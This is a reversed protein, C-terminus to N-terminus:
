QVVVSDVFRVIPLAGQEYPAICRKEDRFMVRLEEAMLIKSLALLNSCEESLETVDDIDWVDLIFFESWRSV